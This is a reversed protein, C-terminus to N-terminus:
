SDGTIEAVIDDVKIFSMTGPDLISEQETARKLGGAGISTATILDNFDSSFNKTVIKNGEYLEKANNKNKVIDRAVIPENDANNITTVLYSKGNVRYGLHKLNYEQNLSVLTKIFVETLGVKNLNRETSFMEDAPHINKMFTMFTDANLSFLEDIADDTIDWNVGTDQGLSILDEKHKLWTNVVSLKLRSDELEEYIDDLVCEVIESRLTRLNLKPHGIPRQTHCIRVQDLLLHVLHEYVQVYFLDSEDPRIIKIIDVCQTVLDDSTKNEINVLPCYKKGDPYTYLVVSHPNITESSEWDGVEVITHLFRNNDPCGRNIEFERLAEAYASKNTGDRKAKVQHRSDVRDGCIIDFDEAREFELAWDDLDNGSAELDTITLLAVLLGVKGQRIYGSWSSTANRKETVTIPEPM